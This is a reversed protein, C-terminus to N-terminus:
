RNFNAKLRLVWKRFLGGGGSQGVSYQYSRSALEMRWLRSKVESSLLVQNMHPEALGSQSQEKRLRPVLTFLISHTRSSTLSTYLRRLRITAANEVSRICSSLFEALSYILCPIEASFQTSVRTNHFSLGTSLNQSTVFKGDKHGRIM